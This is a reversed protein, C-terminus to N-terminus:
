SDVEDAAVSDEDRSYKMARKSRFPRPLSAYRSLLGFLILGAGVWTWWGPPLYEPDNRRVLHVWIPLFVPELLSILAAIHSPTTKLGHAFLFYPLGMQFIGLCVLVWWAGGSPIAMGGILVIPGVVLATAGHNLTILWAPDENPLARMSLIVGAYTVGSLIALVSAYWKQDPRNEGSMTEMFLIFLVGATCFSLMVWDRSTPRDGYVLIAGLMVWAPALYQLWITNAPSGVVMATLFSITMTAFSVVMPIMAFHWSIKRCLPILLVLAFLARWFAIATGRTDKEWIGLQPLQTLFGSLSWLFTATVILLVGYRTPSLSQSSIEANRVFEKVSL